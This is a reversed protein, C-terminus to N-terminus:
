QGTAQRLRALAIQYDYLAQALAARQATLINQADTVEIIPGEGARYRAMSIEFNSTADAVGTGANRIRTAASLALLRSTNYQQNLGLMVLKRSSALSQLRFEAQRERSKSAGWDFVPITLSVTALLGTHLKLPTPRLSDSAFGGGFSYTLTPRREIKALKIESEAARQQAEFFSYEPRQKIMEFTFGDVEGAVPMATMLDLPAIPATAEAGILIRLAETAAAENAMAQELEDRRTTVQLQARLFDVPAVEGGKVLLETSKSFETATALNQKAALQKAVALALAFYNEDVAQILARRAVETGAHAAVLLARNRNLTVRLRGSTDLEGTATGLIQHETIANSGIFSPTHSVDAGISPSNYILSPTAALRPYFATKAQQVDEAASRENLQSQEFNSAQQLALRVAEDRTLTLSVPQAFCTAACLLLFFIIIKKRLYLAAKM